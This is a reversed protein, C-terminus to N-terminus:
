SEEGPEQEVEEPDLPVRRESGDASRLLQEVKMEADGLQEDLHRALAVGEEFLALSRELPLEGEELQHVIEELRRMRSEFDNEPQAGESM